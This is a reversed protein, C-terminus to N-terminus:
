SGTGGRFCCSSCCAKRGRSASSYVCLLRVHRDQTVTVGRQQALCLVELAELTDGLRDPCILAQKGLAGIERLGPEVETNQLALRMLQGPREGRILLGEVAADCTRFLHVQVTADDVCVMQM